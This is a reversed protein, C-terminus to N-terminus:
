FTSDFSRSINALEQQDCYSEHIYVYKHMMKQQFLVKIHNQQHVIKSM